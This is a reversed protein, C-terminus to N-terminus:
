VYCYWEEVAEWFGLGLDLGPGLDQCWVKVVSTVWAEGYVHDVM